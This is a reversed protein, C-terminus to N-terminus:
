VSRSILAITGVVIRKETSTAHEDDGCFGSGGGAAAAFLAVGASDIVMGGIADEEGAAGGGGGGTADVDDFPGAGAGEGGGSGSGSATVHLVVSSQQIPSFRSGILRGSLSRPFFIRGHLSLECAGDHSLPTQL